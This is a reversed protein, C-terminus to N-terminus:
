RKFILKLIRPQKVALYAAVMGGYVVIGVMIEICISTFLGAAILASIRVACYMVLGAITPFVTYKACAKIQKALPIMQIVFIVSYSVVTAIAAGKAGLLYILGCNTVINVIAGITVARTYVKDMQKPILIQTRIYNNWGVLPISICLVCLLAVTGQFEEGLFWIVFEPAIAAIGFGMGFALILVICASYDLIKEAEEKNDSVALNSMKSLMVTGLAAIFSLPIRVIKDAYDYCGLDNIKGFWGLMGKDIMRNLNAAVVAVCLMLLPKLHKKLDAIPVIRFSVYKRLVPWVALQSVLMSFSLIFTYIGVDNRDKVFLFIATMSLIKIITNRTVTLKFKEIGFFFWNVDFFSSIVYFGQLMFVLRYETVFCYCYLFYLIIAIISVIAHLEFLESFVRDMENRNDRVRAISRNGYQELGLMGFIVFYAAIANSFSYVGSNDTGLVRAVYPATLLPLIFILMQYLTQYIINKKLTNMQSMNAM